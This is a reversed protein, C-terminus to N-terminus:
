YPQKFLALVSILGVILAIQDARKRFENKKRQDLIEKTMKFSLFTIFIVVVLSVAYAASENFTHTKIYKSVESNRLFVDYFIATGVFFLGISALFKFPGSFMDTYIEQTKSTKKKILKKNKAM